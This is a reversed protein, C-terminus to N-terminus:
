RGPEALFNRRIEMEESLIRVADEEKRFYNGALYRKHSTITGKETDSAVSMKDTIYWYREGKEAKMNLPEIRKLFHNWTKGVKALEVELFKRQYDAPKFASFSFDDVKGLYENMSYRVPEGKVAYCYMVVDGTSKDILRLVGCGEQGTSHNHFTILECSKPIYKDSILFFPNGFEKGNESLISYLRNLASEDAHTIDQVPVSIQNFIPTNGDMRLCMIATHVNGEQILGVTEGWKVADGAGFGNDFWDAFTAYDLSEPDDSYSSPVHLKINFEGRCYSSIGKFDMESRYKRKRLFHEVQKKTKM